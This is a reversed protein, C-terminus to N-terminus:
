SSKKDVAAAVVNSHISSNTDLPTDSHRAAVNHSLSKKMVKIKQNKLLSILVKGHNM